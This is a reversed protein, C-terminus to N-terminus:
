GRLWREKQKRILIYSKLGLQDQVQEIARASRLRCGRKGTRSMSTNCTHAVSDLQVRLKNKFLVPGNTQEKVQSNLSGVTESPISNALTQLWSHCCDEHQCWNLITYDM